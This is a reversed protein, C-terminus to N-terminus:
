SYLLFSSTSHVFTGYNGNLGERVFLEAACMTVGAVNKAVVTYRGTDEPYVEKITLSCLTDARYIQEFEESPEIMSSERFWTVVPIPNGRVSCEFRAANGDHESQDTLLQTFVPKSVDASDVDLPFCVTLPLDLM